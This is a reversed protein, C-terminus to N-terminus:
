ATVGETLQRATPLPSALLHTDYTVVRRRRPEYHDMFRKRVFPMEDRETMAIQRLGGVAECAEYIAPSSFGHDYVFGWGDNEEYYRRPGKVAEMLEEWAAEPLKPLVGADTLVQEARALIEAPVPFFTCERLCGMLAAEFVSDHVERLVMWYVEFTGKTAGRAPWADALAQMGRNFVERTM